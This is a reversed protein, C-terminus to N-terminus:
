LSVDEGQLIHTRMAHVANGLHRRRGRMPAQKLSLMSYTLPPMRKSECALRCTLPASMRMVYAIALREEIHQATRHESTEVQKQLVELDYEVASFRRMVSDQSAWLAM